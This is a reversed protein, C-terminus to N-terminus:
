DPLVVLYRFHLLGHELFNISWTPWIMHYSLQRCIDSSIDGPFPGSINEKATFKLSLALFSFDSAM